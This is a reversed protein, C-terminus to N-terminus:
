RPPARRAVVCRRTSRSVRSSPVGDDFIFEVSDNRRGSERVYVERVDVQDNRLGFKGFAINEIVVASSLSSSERSNITEFPAV